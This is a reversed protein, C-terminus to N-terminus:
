FHLFLHLFLNMYKFIGMIIQLFNNVIKVALNDIKSRKIEDEQKRTLIQLSM